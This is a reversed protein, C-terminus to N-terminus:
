TSLDRNIIVVKSPVHFDVSRLNLREKSTLELSPPLDDLAHQHLIRVGERRILCSVFVWLEKSWIVLEVIPVIRYSKLFLNQM